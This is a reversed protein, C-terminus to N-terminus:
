RQWIEKTLADVAKWLEPFLPETGGPTMSTVPINKLSMVETGLVRRALAFHIYRLKQFQEDYEMLDEIIQLEELNERPHRHVELVTKKRRAMMAEFHPWLEQPLTLLRHFGPSESGSGRGLQKRIEHFDVPLLTELLPFAELLHRAIKRVRSLIRGAELLQDDDLLKMVWQMEHDILKMWLECSQHTIQFMLEDHTALEEPSKQLALLADTRIYRDYDTPPRPATKSM